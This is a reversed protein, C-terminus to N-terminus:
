WEGQRNRSVEVLKQLETQMKEKRDESAEYEDHIYRHCKADVCIINSEELGLWPHEELTQIHHCIQVGSFRKKSLCLQCLYNDRDKVKKVLLKWGKSNYFAARKKDRKKTDYEKHRDKRKEEYQKQCKDCRQLSLDIKKGCGCLKLLAM